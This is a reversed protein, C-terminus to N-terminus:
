GHAYRRRWLRDLPAARRRSSKSHFAAWGMKAFAAAWASGDPDFLRRIVSENPRDEIEAEVQLAIEESSGDEYARREVERPNMSDAHRMRREAMNAEALDRCCLCGIWHRKNNHRSRSM